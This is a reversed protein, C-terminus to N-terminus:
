TASEDGTPKVIAQAPRPDSGVDTQRKNVLGVTVHALKNMLAILVEPPLHQHVALLESLRQLADRVTEPEM